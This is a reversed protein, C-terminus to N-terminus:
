GSIKFIIYGLLLIIIALMVLLIMNKSGAGSGETKAYKQKHLDQKSKGLLDDLPTETYKYTSTKQETVKQNKEIFDPIGNNNDDKLFKQFEVPIDEFRTYVVGNIEWSKNTIVKSSSDLPLGKNLLEKIQEPVEDINYYVKDGIILPFNIKDAM